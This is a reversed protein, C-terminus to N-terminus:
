LGDYQADYNSPDTTATQVPNGNVDLEGYGILEQTTLNLDATSTNAAQYEPTETPTEAHVTTEVSPDVTPSVELSSESSPPPAPPEEYTEGVAGSPDNVPSASAVTQLQTEGAGVDVQVSEVEVVEGNKVVSYQVRVFDGKTTNLIEGAQVIPVAVSSELTMGMLESIYPAPMKSEYVFGPGAEAPMDGMAARMEDNLPPLVYPM